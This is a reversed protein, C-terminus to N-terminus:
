MFAPALQLSSALGDDEMFGSQGHEKEAAVCKEAPCYERIKRSTGQSHPREYNMELALEARSVWGLARQLAPSFFTAVSSNSM